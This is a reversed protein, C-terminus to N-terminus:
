TEILKEIIEPPILGIGYNWDFKGEKEEVRGFDLLIITNDSQLYAEVDYLHIKHKEALINTIDILSKIIKKYDKLTKVKEYNNLPIETNIKEMLYKDKSDYLIPTRVKDTIKYLINNVKRHNEKEIEMNKLYRRKYIKQVIENSIKVINSTMGEM